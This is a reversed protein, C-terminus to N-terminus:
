SDAADQRAQRARVADLCWKHLEDDLNELVSCQLLRNHRVVERAMVTPGRQEDSREMVRLAAKLAPLKTFAAVDGFKNQQALVMMGARIQEPTFSKAAHEVDAATVAELHEQGVRRCATRLDLHETEM